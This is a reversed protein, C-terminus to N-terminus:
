VWQHLEWTSFIIVRTCHRHSTIGAYILVSINQVYFHRSLDKVINDAFPFTLWPTSTYIDEFDKEKDDRSLFVIEVTEM